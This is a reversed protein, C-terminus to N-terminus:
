VVEGCNGLLNLCRDYWLVLKQVGEDFLDGGLMETLEALRKVRLWEESESQGFYTRIIWFNHIVQIQRIQASVKEDTVLSLHRSWENDHVNTRGEKNM